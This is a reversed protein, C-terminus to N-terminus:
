VNDQKRLALLVCLCFDAGSPSSESNVTPSGVSVSFLYVTRACVCLRQQHRLRDKDEECVHVCVYM